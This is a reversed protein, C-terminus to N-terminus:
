AEGGITVRPPTRTWSNAPKRMAMQLYTWASIRRYEEGEQKSLKLQEVAMRWLHNRHM